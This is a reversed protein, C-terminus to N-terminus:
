PPWPAPHSAAEQARGCNHTTVASGPLEHVIVVTPRSALEQALQVGEAALSLLLVAAGATRAIPRHRRVPAPRRHKPAHSTVPRSPSAPSATLSALREYQVATLPPAAAIVRQIHRALADTAMEGRPAPIHLDDPGYHRVVNAVASRARRWVDNRAAM